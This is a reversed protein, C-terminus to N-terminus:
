VSEEKALQSVSAILREQIASLPADLGLLSGNQHDEPAKPDVSREVYSCHIQDVLREINIVTKPRNEQILEKVLPKLAKKIIRKLM